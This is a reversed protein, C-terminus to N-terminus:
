LATLPCAACARNQFCTEERCGLGPQPAGSRVPHFPWVGTVPPKGGAVPQRNAHARHRLRPPKM